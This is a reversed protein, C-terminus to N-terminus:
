LHPIQYWLSLRSFNILKRGPTHQWARFLWPVEAPKFVPQDGVVCAWAANAAVVYVTCYKIFVDSFLLSTKSRKKFKKLACKLIYSRRKTQYRLKGRVPLLPFRSVVQCQCRNQYVWRM